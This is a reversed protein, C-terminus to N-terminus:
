IQKIDEHTKDNEMSEEYNTAIEDFRNLYGKKNQKSYPFHVPMAKYREDHDVSNRNLREIKQANLKEKLSM